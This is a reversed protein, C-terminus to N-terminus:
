SIQTASLTAVQVSSDGPHASLAYPVTIFAMTMTVFIVGVVARFLDAGLSPQKKM